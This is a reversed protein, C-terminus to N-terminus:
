TKSVFSLERALARLYPQYRIPWRRLKVASILPDELSSINTHVAIGRDGVGPRPLSLLWQLLARGQPALAM